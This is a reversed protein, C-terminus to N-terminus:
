LRSRGVVAGVCCERAESKGMARDVEGLGELHLCFKRSKERAQLSLSGGRTVLPRRGGPIIEELKM